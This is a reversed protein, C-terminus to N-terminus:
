NAADAAAQAAKIKSLGEGLQAELASGATRFSETRTDMEAQDTAVKAAIKESESMVMQMARGSEIGLAEVKADTAAAVTMSKQLEGHM